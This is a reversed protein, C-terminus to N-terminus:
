RNAASVAKESSEVPEIARLVLQEGVASDPDTLVPRAPERDQEFMPIVPQPEAGVVHPRPRLLKAGGGGGLDDAHKAVQTPLDVGMSRAKAAPRKACDGKQGVATKRRQEAKAGGQPVMCDHAEDHSRHGALM